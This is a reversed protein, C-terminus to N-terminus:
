TCIVIINVSVDKIMELQLYYKFSSWREQIFMQLAAICQLWSTIKFQSLNHLEMIFCSSRLSEVQGHKCLSFFKWWGWLSVESSCATVCNCWSVGTSVAIFIYLGVYIDTQSLIQSWPKAGTRGSKCNQTQLVSPVLVFVGEADQVVWVSSVMEGNCTM